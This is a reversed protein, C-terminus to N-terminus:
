LHEDIKKVSNQQQIQEEIGKMVNLVQESPVQFIVANTEKDVFRYVIRQGDLVRQVEEEHPQAQVPQPHVEPPQTTKSVSRERDGAAKARRVAPVDTEAAGMSQIPEIPM